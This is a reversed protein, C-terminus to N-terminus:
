LQIASLKYLQANLFSVTMHHSQIMMTNSTSHAAACPNGAAAYVDCPGEPRQMADRQAVAMTGLLVSPAAVAVSLALVLLNRNKM